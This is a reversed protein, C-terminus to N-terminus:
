VSTLLICYCCGAIVWLLLVAIKLHFLVLRKEESFGLIMESTKGLYRPVCILYFISICNSDLTWKLENSGLFFLRSIFIIGKTFFIPVMLIYLYCLSSRPPLWWSDVFFAWACCRGPLSGCCGCCTRFPFQIVGHGTICSASICPQLRLLSSNIDTRHVSASAPDRGSCSSPNWNLRIFSATPSYRCDNLASSRQCVRRAQARAPIQM